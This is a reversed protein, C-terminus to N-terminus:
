NLAKFNQPLPYGRSSVRCFAFDSSLSLEFESPLVELGSRAPSGVAKWGLMMTSSNRHVLAVGRYNSRDKECWLSVAAAMVAELHEDELAEAYASQELWRYLKLHQTWDFVRGRYNFHRIFDRFLKDGQADDLKLLEPCLDFLTHRHLQLGKGARYEAKRM